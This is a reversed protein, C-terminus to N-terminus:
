ISKVKILDISLIEREFGVCLYVFLGTLEAGFNFERTFLCKQM